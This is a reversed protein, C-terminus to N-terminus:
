RGRRRGQHQEQEQAPEARAVEVRPTDLPRDSRDEGDADEMLYGRSKDSAVLAQFGAVRRSETMAARVAQGDQERGDAGDRQRDRDNM